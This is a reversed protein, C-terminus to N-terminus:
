FLSNCESQLYPPGGALRALGDGADWRFVDLTWCGVDLKWPRYLSDLLRVIRCSFALAADAALSLDLDRLDVYALDVQFEGTM